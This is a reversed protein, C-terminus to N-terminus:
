RAMRCHAAHDEVNIMGLKGSLLFDRFCFSVWAHMLDVERRHWSEYIKRDHYMGHNAFCLRVQERRKHEYHKRKADQLERTMREM